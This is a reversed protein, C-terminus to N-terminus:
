KASSNVLFTLVRVSLVPTYAAGLITKSNITQAVRRGLADYTTTELKSDPCTVQTCHNVM